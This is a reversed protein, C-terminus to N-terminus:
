SLFAEIAQAFLRPSIGIAAISNSWGGPEFVPTHDHEQSAYEVYSDIFAYEFPERLDAPEWARIVDSPIGVGPDGPLYLYGRDLVHACNMGYDTSTVSAVFFEVLSRDTPGALESLLEMPALAEYDDEGEEAREDAAAAAKISDELNAALSYVRGPGRYSPSPKLQPTLVEELRHRIRDVRATAGPTEESM